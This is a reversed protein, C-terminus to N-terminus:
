TPRWRTPVEQVLNKESVGATAQCKKLDAKGIVSSNFYGVMGRGKSTTAQIGEHKAYHNQSLEITHDVCPKTHGTENWGKIMNAANDCVKIFLQEEPKTIGSKKWEERSMNDILEGTHHEQTCPIAGMLVEEMDYHVVGDGDKWREVGHSVMGFLATGHASWLDGSVSPKIGDELLSENFLKAENRGDMSLATLHQKVTKDCCGEYLGNTAALMKRKYANTSAASLNLEDEIIWEATLRIHAGIHAGFLFTM